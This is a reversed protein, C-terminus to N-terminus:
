ALGEQASACLARNVDAPKGVKKYHWLLRLIDSIFMWEM